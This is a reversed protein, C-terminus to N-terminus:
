CVPMGKILEKVGSELYNRVEASINPNIQILFRQIKQIKSKIDYVTDEKDFEVWLGYLYVLVNKEKRTLKYLFESVLDTPLPREWNQPDDPMILSEAFSVHAMGYVDKTLEYEIAYGFQNGFMKRGKQEFFMNGGKM